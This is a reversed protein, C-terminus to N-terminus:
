RPKRNDPASTTSGTTSSPSAPRHRPDLGAWRAAGSLAAAPHGRDSRRDGLIVTTQRDLAALKRYLAWDRMGAVNDNIQKV